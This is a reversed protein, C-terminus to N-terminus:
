GPKLIILDQDRGRIDKPIISIKDKKVLESLVANLEIAKLKTRIRLETWEAKGNLSTLSWLVRDYPPQKPQKM